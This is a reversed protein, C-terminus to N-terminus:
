RTRAYRWGYFGLAAAASALLLGIIAWVTASVGGDADITSEGVEPLAVPTVAASVTVTLVDSELNGCVAAVEIDGPTSGAELTM